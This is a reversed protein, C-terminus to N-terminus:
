EKELGISLTKNYIDKKLASLKDLFGNNRLLKFVINELCFEGDRQIAITRKTSMDKLFAEIENITVHYDINERKALEEFLLIADVKDQYKKRILQKDIQPVEKLEPKFIWKNKAISFAGAEFKSDLMDEPYVEVKFDFMQVDHSHNWVAKKTQLYELLFKRHKEFNKLNFVVHLDIDSKDNWTYRALSGTLVIDSLNLKKVKVFKIFDKAIQLLNKRVDPHM